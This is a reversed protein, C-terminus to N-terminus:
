EKAALQERARNLRELLAKSKGRFINEQKVYDELTAIEKPYDNNMRYLKALEVYYWTDIGLGDVNNKTKNYAILDVLMKEAGRFDKNKKLEQLTKVHSTLVLRDKDDSLL